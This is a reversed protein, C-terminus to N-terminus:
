KLRDSNNQQMTKERRDGVRALRRGAFWYTPWPMEEDSGSGPYPSESPAIQYARGLKAVQAYHQQRAARSLLKGCNRKCWCRKKKRPNQRQRHRGMIIQATLVSYLAQQHAVQFSYNHQCNFLHIPKCFFSTVFVCLTAQPSSPCRTVLEKLNSM